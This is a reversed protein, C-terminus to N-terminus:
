LLVVRTTLNRHTEYARNGAATRSFSGVSMGGFSRPPDFVPGPLRRFDLRHTEYALFFLPMETFWVFSSNENSSLLDIFSGKTATKIAKYSLHAFLLAAVLDAIQFNHTWM